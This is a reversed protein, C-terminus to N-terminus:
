RPQRRRSTGNAMPILRLVNLGHKKRRRDEPGVRKARSSACLSFCAMPALSGYHATSPRLAKKRLIRDDRPGETGATSIAQRALRRKLRADVMATSEISALPAVIRRHRGRVARDDLHLATQM